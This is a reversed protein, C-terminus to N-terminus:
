LTQLGSMTWIVSLFGMLTAFGIPWETGNIFGKSTWVVENSQFKPRNISGAPLWIVFIILAILNTWTGILFRVAPNSVLAYVM